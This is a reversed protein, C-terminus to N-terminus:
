KITSFFDFSTHKINREKIGEEETEAPISIGL